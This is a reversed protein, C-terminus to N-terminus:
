SRTASTDRSTYAAPARQLVGDGAARVAGSSGPSRRAPVHLTYDGAPIDSISNLPYGPVTADITAPQGPALQSVDLGFIPVGHGFPHTQYRPEPSSDRSLIVFVRGTIPEAHAAAAFSISFQLGPAQAAAAGALAVACGVALRLRRSM